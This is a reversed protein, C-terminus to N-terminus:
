FKDLWKRMRSRHRGLGHTDRKSEPEVEDRKKRESDEIVRM